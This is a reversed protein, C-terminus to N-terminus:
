GSGGPAPDRATGALHATAPASPSGGADPPRTSSLKVLVGDWAPVARVEEVRLAIEPRAEVYAGVQTAQELSGLQLISLGGPRLHRATVAVCARAVELGDSGGDIAEVPDAPFRGLEASPVWPPDALILAFRENDGLVGEFPGQRVDVRVPLDAATTNFRAHDCAIADADVLVVERDALAAFMLGIHGVGAGLELVAGPPLERALEAAWRSQALTWPRPRLVREDFRVTLQGFRMTAM